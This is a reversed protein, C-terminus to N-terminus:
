DPLNGLVCPHALLRYRVYEISCYLFDGCAYLSSVLHLHRVEAGEVRSDSGGSLRAIKRRTVANVDGRPGDRGEPNAGPQLLRDGSSTGGGSPAGPEALQERAEGFLRANGDRSTRVGHV